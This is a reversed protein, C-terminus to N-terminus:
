DEIVIRFGVNFVRQWPMYGLRFSSTARYPRDRWSGGRVVKKVKAPDKATEGYPVYDSRTWEAVNGHMDFLGWVNPKYSGPLAVIFNKDDVRGARPIFDFQPKGILHRRHKPNVGSVAHKAISKDALNAYRSFNSKLSGFSMAKDSGARCAWEWQEETPLVVKKNLEKGLWQCFAAAEQYSLRVAVQEPANAEYGRRTHDKWQQDYVMSDHKSNFQRFQNNTIETASIWFPKKIVVKHKPQEMRSESDSGM